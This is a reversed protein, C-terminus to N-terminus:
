KKKIGQSVHVVRDRLYVPLANQAPVGEGAALRAWALRAVTAARPCVTEDWEALAPVAAQLAAKHVVGSGAGSRLNPPLVPLATPHALCDALLTKLSHEGAREYAGLYLEGMRADFAILAPGPLGRDFGALAASALTSVGLVPRDLAYALGQTVAVAIRVGTFAGPGQGFAIGDLQGRSVGAEALLAAVMPLVRDTQRRAALEFHELVKGNDLLAVSCTETATEIALIKM